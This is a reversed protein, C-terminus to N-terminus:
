KAYLKTKDPKVENISKCHECDEIKEYKEEFFLRSLFSSRRSVTPVTPNPHPPPSHVDRVNFFLSARFM